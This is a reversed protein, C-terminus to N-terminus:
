RAPQRSKEPEAPVPRPAPRGPRRAASPAASEHRAPPRGAAVPEEPHAATPSPDPARRLRLLRAGEAVAVVGFALLLTHAPFLYRPQDADYDAADVVTLLGLRTAVGVALAVALLALPGAARRGRRTALQWALLAAGLGALLPVLVTYVAGLARYQWVVEDFRAQQEAAAAETAPTAPAVAVFEQRWPGPVEPVATVQDYLDRSTVLAGTVRLLSDTFSGPTLRGM